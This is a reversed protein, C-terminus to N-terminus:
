LMAKIVITPLFPLMNIREGTDRDFYFINKRDYVNIISFSLYMKMFSLDFSKTINLDLRHYEPLRATNREGLLPTILQSGFLSFKDAVNDFHLKDYYGALLTFPVGTYYIWTTSAKWGKYINFELIAKLSNRIDYRPVYKRNYIEKNVYGHSFATTFSFRPHRYEFLFDIGYAKSNSPVFDDDYIFVKKENLTPVNNMTKYYGEINFSLNGSYNWELGSIYHIAQAPKLYSPHVIWPEFYNIVVDEDTFTTIEQQYIGWAAKYSLNPLINYSLSVRPEFYRNQGGYSLGVMNVRSGIDFAFNKISLLKYKLYLSLTANVGEGIQGINNEEGLSNKLFLDTTVEKVIFGVGLEDKNDYVYSLDFKGTYDVVTNKIPKEGSAQPILKGNFNSISFDVTYFLPTDIFQFWSFGIVNNSWKADPLLPNKNIIDDGSFFAELSFRGNEIINKNAYNVKFFLDYFKIPYSDEQLFNNLIKNSYSKRGSVIYSGGNFPGQLSTKVSMLSSSVSAKFKNKNGDKTILKIVSSLRGSFKPGFGGLHLEMNKVVEPDISGFLGLAHFPNYIPIDDLLFLNENTAGGRVHFSASVDNSAQIGPLYQLSRFVDAEVGKPLNDIKKESLKQIGISTVNEGYIIAANKEITQMEYDLPALLINVNTIKNRRIRFFLIKKKYGVYSIEAVYDDGSPLSSIIFYGKSDTSSGVGLSKIYINAYALAEGSTSDTIVGRLKGSGQSFMKTNFLFALLFIILGNLLIKKNSIM